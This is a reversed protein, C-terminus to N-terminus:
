YVVADCSPTTLTAVSIFSKVVSLPSVAKQGSTANSKLNLSVVHCLNNRMKNDHSLSHNLSM